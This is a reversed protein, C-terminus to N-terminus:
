SAKENEESGMCNECIGYFHATYSDIRLRSGAAKRATDMIYDINEMPLDRVSHCKTCIFHHHPATSGDFRDAGGDTIIRTIEGLDALLTLNRYVTGLSINPFSQRINMYITDATPHDERSRLFEKISERQRSYKLAAM